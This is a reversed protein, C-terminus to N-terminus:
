SYCKRRDQQAFAYRRLNSSRRGCRLQGFVSLNQDRDRAIRAVSALKPNSLIRAKCRNLIQKRSTGFPGRATNEDYPAFRFPLPVLESHVLHAAAFLFLDFHM